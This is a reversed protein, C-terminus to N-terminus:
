KEGSLYLYIDGLVEHLNKYVEENGYRVVRWGQTQLFETRKQDYRREHDDGHTAGDVEVILKESLCVFDAIYPPIPHQRRFRYNNLGKNRLFHWLRHEAETMNKRLGRAFDRTQKQGRRLKSM